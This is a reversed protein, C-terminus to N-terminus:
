PREELLTHFVDYFLKAPMPLFMCFILEYIM